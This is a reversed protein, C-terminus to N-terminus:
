QITLKIVRLCLIFGITFPTICLIGGVSKLIDGISYFINKTFVVQKIFYIDCLNYEKIEKKPLVIHNNDNLREIDFNEGLVEIVKEKSIPMKNYSNSDIAKYNLNTGIINIFIGVSIIIGLSIIIKNIRQIEYIKKVFLYYIAIVLPVSILILDKILGQEIIIKM